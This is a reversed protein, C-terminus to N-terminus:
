LKKLLNLWPNSNATDSLKKNAIVYAVYLAAMSSVFGTALTLLILTSKKM